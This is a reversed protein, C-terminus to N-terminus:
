FSTYKIQFQNYKDKMADISLINTKYTDIISNYSNYIDYYTEKLQTSNIPM